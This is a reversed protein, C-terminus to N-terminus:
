LDGSSINPTMSGTHVVFARWGSAMLVGGFAICGIVLVAATILLSRTIAKMLRSIQTAGLAPPSM